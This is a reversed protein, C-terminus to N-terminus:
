GAIRKRVVVAALAAAALLFTGPEPTEATVNITYPFGSLNTLPSGFSPFAGEPLNNNVGFGGAAGDPRILAGTSSGASLTPLALGRAVALYYQVGPNLVVRGLFADLNDSGVDLQNSLASFATLIISNGSQYYLALSVAPFNAGGDVDFVYSALTTPTFTYLDVFEPSVDGIVRISVTPGNVMAELPAPETFDTPLIQQASNFNFGQGITIVVSSIGPATLFFLTLWLLLLKKMMSKAPAQLRKPARKSGFLTRM